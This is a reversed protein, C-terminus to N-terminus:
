KSIQFLNSKEACRRLVNPCFSPLWPLILWLWFCSHYSKDHNFTFMVNNTMNLLLCPRIPCSQFYAHCSQDCNFAVIANNTGISAFLVNQVISMLYLWVTMWHHEVSLLPVPKPLLKNNKNVNAWLINGIEPISQVYLKFFKSMRNLIWLFDKSM